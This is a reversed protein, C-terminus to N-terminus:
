WPKDKGLEQYFKEQVWMDPSFLFDTKGMISVDYIKQRIQKFTSASREFATSFQMGIKLM